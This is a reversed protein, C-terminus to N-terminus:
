KRRFPARREYEGCWNEPDVEPYVSMSEATTFNGHNKLWRPVLQPPHRRCLDPFPVVSVGEEPVKWYFRCTGCCPQDTMPSRLREDTM